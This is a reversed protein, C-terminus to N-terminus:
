LSNNKSLILYIFFIKVLLIKLINNKIIIIKSGNCVLYKKIISLILFLKKSYPVMDICANSIKIKNNITYPTIYEIFFLTEKSLFDLINKNNNDKNLKDINIDITNEISLPTAM